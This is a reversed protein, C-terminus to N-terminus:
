ICRAGGWSDLLLLDLMDGRATFLGGLGVVLGSDLIIGLLEGLHARDGRSIIRFFGFIPCLVPNGLAADALERAAEIEWGVDVRVGHRSAKPIADEVNGHRFGLLSPPAANADVLVANKRTHDTRGSCLERRRPSIM